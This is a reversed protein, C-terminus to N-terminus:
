HTLFNQADSYDTHQSLGQECAFRKEQIIQLARMRNTDEQARSSKPHDLHYQIAGFRLFRLTCGLQMLRLALDIDEWGWGSFQEDYGNVRFLDQRWFSMNSGLVYEYHTKWHYFYLMPKQLPLCRLRRWNWKALKLSTHVSASSNTLMLQTVDHPIHYQNGSFFFGKKAHRLHDIVYHRHLIVDGDLQIIYESTATKLGLNRVRALRFGLDAQWVHLLPVPSRKQLQQILQQTAEGSGDDCVIIETPLHSQQFLSELCLVLSEPRNYTTVLVSCTPLLM